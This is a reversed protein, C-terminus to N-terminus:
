WVLQPEVVADIRFIVRRTGSHHGSKLVTVPSGAGVDRLGREVYRICSQDDDWLGSGDNQPFSCILRVPLGGDNKLRDRVGRFFARTAQGPHETLLVDIMEVQTRARHEKERTKQERNFRRRRLGEKM